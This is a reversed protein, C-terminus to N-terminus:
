KQPKKKVLGTDYGNNQLIKKITNEEIDKAKETIPYTHLRNLLYNIGSLKHEYPYCSIPKHPNKIYQFNCIKEKLIYQSILSTLPNM